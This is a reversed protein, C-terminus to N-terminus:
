FINSSAVEHGRLFRLQVFVTEKLDEARKVQGDEDQAQGISTTFLLGLSKRIVSM